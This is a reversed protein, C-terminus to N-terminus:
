GKQASNFNNTRQVMNVTPLSSQQAKLFLEHAVLQGHLKDFSVLTTRQQLGGIIGNYEAGLKCFAIANFEISSIVQGAQALSDAIAKAQHLYKSVSKDDKSLNYLEIYFQTRQVHSVVGYAATLALWVEPSSTLGILHPFNEESISSLLWSFLIQHKPFWATYAQTTKM